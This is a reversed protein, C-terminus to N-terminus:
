FTATWKLNTADYATANASNKFLATLRTSVTASIKTMAIDVKTNDTNPLVTYDGGWPNSATGTFGAPLYQDTKLKDISIGTYTLNGAALYNGGASRLTNVSQSASQIGANDRMGSAGVLVGILIAIIGVVIAMEVLSFGEKNNLRYM